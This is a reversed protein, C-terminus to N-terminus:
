VIDERCCSETSVEPQDGMGRYLACEYRSYAAYLQRGLQQALMVEGVETLGVAPGKLSLLGSIHM